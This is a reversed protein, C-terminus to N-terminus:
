YRELKEQKYGLLLPRCLIYGIGFVIISAVTKGIQEQLFLIPLYQNMMIVIHNAIILTFYITVGWQFIWGITRIPHLFIYQIKNLFCM